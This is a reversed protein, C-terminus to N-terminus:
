QKREDDETLQLDPFRARAKKLAEEEAPDPRPKPRRTPKPPPDSRRAEEELIHNDMVPQDDEDELPPPPPVPSMMQKWQDGVHRMQKREEPSLVPEVRDSKTMMTKDGADQGEEAISFDSPNFFGEQKNFGMVLSRISDVANSAGLTSHLQREHEYNMAFYIWGITDHDLDTPRMAAAMRRRIEPPVCASEKLNFRVMANMFDFKSDDSVGEAGLENDVGIELRGAARVWTALGLQSDILVRRTDIPSQGTSPVIGREYPYGAAAAAAQNAAQRTDNPM